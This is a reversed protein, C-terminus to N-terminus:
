SQRSTPLWAMPSRWLALLRAVYALRDEDPMLDVIESPVSFEDFGRRELEPGLYEEWRRFDAATAELGSSLRNYAAPSGDRNVCSTENAVRRPDSSACAANPPRIGFSRLSEGLSSTLIGPESTGSAIIAPDPSTPARPSERRRSNDAATAATAAPHVRR